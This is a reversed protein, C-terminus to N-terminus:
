LGRAALWEVVARVIEAEVERPSRGLRKPLKFSHDAEDLKYLTAREGLRELVGLLLEFSAFADRTGQVFLM